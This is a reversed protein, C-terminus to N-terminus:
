GDDLDTGEVRGGLREIAQELDDAADQLADRTQGQARVRRLGSVASEYSEIAESRLDDAKSALQDAITSLRQALEGRGRDALGSFASATQSLSSARRSLLDGLTRSAGAAILTGDVGGSNARRATSAAKQLAQRAEDLVAQAENQHLSDIETALTILEASFERASEQAGAADQQSRRAQQAVSERAESLINLQTNIAEIRVGVAELEPRLVARQADLMSSEAELQDARRGVDRAEQITLAAEIPGEGLARDRLGSEEARVTRVQAEIATIQASLDEIRRELTQRQSQAGSLQEQLESARADITAQEASPDYAGLAESTQQASVRATELSVMRTLKGGIEHELEALRSLSPRALGAEAEAALLAGIAQQAQTGGSVPGLKSTTARYGSAAFEDSVPPVSGPSISRLEISADAIARAAPDQKDCGVAAGALLAACVLRTAVSRRPSGAERGAENTAM